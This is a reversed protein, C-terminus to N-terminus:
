EMTSRLFWYFSLGFSAQFIVFAVGSYEDYEAAKAYLADLEAPNGSSLYDEYFHDAQRKLLIATVGSAASVGAGLLALKRFHKRRSHKELLEAQRREIQTEDELLNVHWFRQATNGINMGFNQYGDLRLEVWVNREGTVYVVVPTTGKSVQGVFVEAGYPKSNILYGRKFEAQLSLTDGAALQYKEVWDTDLWSEPQSQRVVIEHEGPAVSFNKLPTVGVAAGDIFVPLGHKPAAVSIVAPSQSQQETQGLLAGAHFLAVAGCVLRCLLARIRQM